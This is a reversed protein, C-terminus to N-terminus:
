AIWSLKKEFHVSLDVDKLDLCNDIGNPLYIQVSRFENKNFVCSTVFVVKTLTDRKIYLGAM